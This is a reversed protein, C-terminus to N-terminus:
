RLGILAGFRGTVREGRYSFFLNTNCRTCLGGSYINEDSVGAECLQDRTAAWFDFCDSKDKYKWFEEPIEKRYNVFEACCPGLSPGIGGIIHRPECGFRKEMVNITRATINKISGRWGSHINAVVQQVPDYLLVAQCDAVQIVLMRGPIDTVMADGTLVPPGAPDDKSFILIETGHVQNAFVLEKEEMCQSILRRNHKVCSEEDGVGPSINLHHYPIKSCGGNRTFVGHRIDVYKALNPFQFFPVENKQKLIM